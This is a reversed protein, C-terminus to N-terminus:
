SSKNINTNINTNTNTSNNEENETDESMNGSSNQYLDKVSEDQSLSDSSSVLGKEELILISSCSVMNNFNSILSYTYAGMGGFVLWDGVIIKKPITVKRAV